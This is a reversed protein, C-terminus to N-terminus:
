GTYKKFVVCTNNGGFAYANNFAINVTTQRAKNPVCDIDCEPDPTTYNITPAICGTKIAMCCGLSEIASAAGMCHGLMSKLSSVAVRKQRQGFIKNIAASENKDNQGTGTGHACIYDVADVPISTEKLANEMCRMIGDESPITMHNADCSLGYGLIEAYIPAKRKLAQDLSELILIAAGEGVLMGKRNKDFPSCIDPSMAYLRSFGTFAIRSFADAGGTIAYDIEGRKILDFGYGLAYNGAACAAPIVLNIGSLGFYIGTNVALLNATTRPVLTPNVKKLGKEFWAKNLKEFVSAEGMTTGLLVANKNAPITKPDIHADKFALTTAAIALQSARGIRKVQRKDMYVLPDFDKIEGGYTRGYDKTDFAEVKSIGSTGALLAKWLADKGTGTSAIAGLGTVVVRKHM